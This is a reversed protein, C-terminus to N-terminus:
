HTNKCGWEIKVKLAGRSDGTDPSRSLAPIGRTISGRQYLPGYMICSRSEPNRIDVAEETNALSIPSYV